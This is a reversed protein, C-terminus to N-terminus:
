QPNYVEIQIIDEAEITINNETPNPYIAMLDSDTSNEDINTIESFTCVFPLGLNDFILSTECWDECAYGNQVLEEVGFELADLLNDTSNGNYVISESLKCYGDYM